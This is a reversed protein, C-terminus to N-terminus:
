RRGSVRRPAVAEINRGPKVWGERRSGDPLSPPLGAAVAGAALRWAHLIRAELREAALRAGRGNAPVDDFSIPEDFVVACSRRNQLSWRFSEVGCPVVPARTRLAITLAGLQVPGPYGFRQRTGEVFVGVVHGDAVLECATRLADRDRGGRRIPFAGTFTLLEGALPIDLLEEKMMWCVARKSFSGILPPDIAAFHNAALVAGGSAPVRDLGYGVSGRALAMTAPAVWWRMFSWAKEVDAGWVYPLGLRELRGPVPRPRHPPEGGWDDAGAIAEPVERAAPARRGEGPWLPGVRV